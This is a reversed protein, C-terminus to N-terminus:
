DIVAINSLDNRGRVRLRRIRDNLDARAASGYGIFQNVRTGIDDRYLQISFESGLKRFTEAVVGIESDYFGVRGLDVVGFKDAAFSRLDYSVERVVNGSRDELVECRLALM